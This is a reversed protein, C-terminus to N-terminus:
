HAHAFHQWFACSARVVVHLTQGAMMCAFLVQLKVSSCRLAASAQASEANSAGVDSHAEAQSSARCHITCSRAQRALTMRVMGKQQGPGQRAVRKGRAEVFDRVFGDDRQGGGWMFDRVEPAAAPMGCKSGNSPTILVQTPHLQAWGVVAESAGPVKCGQRWPLRATTM